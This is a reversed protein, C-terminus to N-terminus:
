ANGRGGKQRAPPTNLARGFSWGRRLRSAVTYVSIGKQACLEREGPRFLSHDPAKAQAPTSVAREEPWGRRLRNFITSKPLGTEAAWDELMQTRGAATLLRNFRTNRAQENRTAWRVNTPEYGRNNDVRDLTHQPSPRPEVDFVFRWFDDRWAACVQIGRAGYNPYGVSRPDHCRRVMQRWVGYLPHSRKPGRHRPLKAIRDPLPPLDPRLSPDPM